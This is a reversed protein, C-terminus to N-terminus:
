RRLDFIRVFPTIRTEGALTFGAGHAARRWETPPFFHLFGPGFALLNAMDRGHEVLIAQGGPRLVRAAEAFLRDRGAPTRVEHAALILLLLDADADPVRLDDSRVSRTPLPAPYATRARAISAETQEAPDYFDLVTLEADPFLAKVAESSEDFGSHVNIIRRPQGAVMRRLWAWRYLPSRDYIWWSVVLSGALYFLAGGAGAALGARLWWPRRLRRAVGLAAGAVGAAVAYFPWNFRVINTVGQLPRRRPLGAPPPLPERVGRRWLYPINEVFFASALVPGPSGHVMFPARDLFAATEVRVAVPRPHWETRVGEIRIISHTEPEYDFTFPLPGAYRRATHWDPFPSGPPLARGPDHGLDAMLRLDAEGGPTRVEVSLADGAREHRISAHHYAYHTLLNGSFVMRRRDTDSRLIRLGRLNRGAATRYRAFLRYGTLFFEQGLASPWGAPRLDHTQVLAVAVFGWGDYEDLVLGPPLLPRLVGAPLAYTLVLTWDFHAAVAFPHRQFLHRM